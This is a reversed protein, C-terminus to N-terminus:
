KLICDNVNLFEHAYRIVFRAIYEFIGSNAVLLNERAYRTLLNAIDWSVSLKVLNRM